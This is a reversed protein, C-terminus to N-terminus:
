RSTGAPGGVSIAGTQARPQEHSRECLTPYQTHPAGVTGLREVYRAYYYAMFKEDAYSDTGFVQAWTGKQKLKLASLLENPVPAQYAKEALPSHDRADELMGIENEVQVMIVTNERSDVEAIHAMLRSFAREDAEFVNESFASAIELPKGTRTMARPYKKVDQKFWLPAYCSMSNKWAGFWLFIVKLHNERARNITEDILSFDFKGEDAEMLDWQAPVLVTNLGMRAMRPMVSDIDAISTAASNSLEGGLILMPTGNVVIHAADGQHQLKVEASMTLSFVALLSIFITKM